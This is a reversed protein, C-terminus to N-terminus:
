QYRHFTIRENCRQPVSSARYEISINRQKSNETEKQFLLQKRARRLERWSGGTKYFFFNLKGIERRVLPLAPLLYGLGDQGSPQKSLPSPPRPTTLWWNNSSRPFSFYCWATLQTEGKTMTKMCNKDKISACCFRGYYTFLWCYFFSSLLAYSEVEKCSERM